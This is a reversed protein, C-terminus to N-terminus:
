ADTIGVALLAARCIALPAADAEGVSHTRWDGEPDMAFECVYCGDPERRNLMYRFTGHSRKPVREWVKEGVGWAAAIDTSYFPLPTYGFFRGDDDRDASVPHRQPYLGLWRLDPKGELEFCTAEDWECRLAELECADPQHGCPWDRMVELGMVKEAVLADLERGAPMESVKM